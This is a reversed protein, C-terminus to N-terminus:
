DGNSALQSVVRWDTGRKKLRERVINGLEILTFHSALFRWLVERPKSKFGTSLGHDILVQLAEDRWLFQALAYPIMSPNAEPERTIELRVVDRDKVPTLIGWWSPIIKLAKAAHSPAAVITVYELASGYVDRQSPLRVLTDRESKIEYGHLSGNVVRSVTQYSVASRAAVDKLTPAKPRHLHKTPM